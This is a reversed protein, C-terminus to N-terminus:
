EVRFGKPAKVIRAFRTRKPHDMVVAFAEGEKIDAGSFWRENLISPDYFTVASPQTRLAELLKAKSANCSLVQITM